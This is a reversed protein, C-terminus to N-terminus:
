GDNRPKPGPKLPPAPIMLKAYRQSAAQRSVGLAEGIIDWSMGNSRATQIANVLLQDYMERGRAATVIAEAFDPAVLRV